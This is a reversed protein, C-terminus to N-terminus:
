SLGIFRAAQMIALTVASANASHSLCRGLEEIVKGAKQVRTERDTKRLEQVAKQLEAQENLLDGLLNELEDALQSANQAVNGHGAAGSQFIAGERVELNGYVITGVANVTLFYDSVEFDNEVANRLEQLLLIQVNEREETIQILNYAALEYLSAKSPLSFTGGSWYSWEERDDGPRITILMLQEIQDAKWATVLNSAGIKAEETLPYKIREPM